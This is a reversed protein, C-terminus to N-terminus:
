SVESLLTNAVSETLGIKMGTLFIVDQINNERVYDCINKDTERFDIVHVTQYSDVLLPAFANGYSDKM